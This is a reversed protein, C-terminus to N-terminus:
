EYQWFFGSKKFKSDRAISGGFVFEVSPTVRGDSLVEIKHVIEDRMARTLNPYFAPDFTLCVILRAASRCVANRVWHGYVIPKGTSILDYSAFDLSREQRAITPYEDFLDYLDSGYLLLEQSEPDQLCHGKRGRYVYLEDKATFIDGTRYRIMPQRQVFPYLTTLLLEGTNTTDPAILEPVVYRDFDFGAAYTCQSAGGFIESLSYRELITAGWQEELLLRLRRSIYDGTVSILDINFERPSLGSRICYSTFLLLQDLFASIVRNGVTFGMAEGGERLYQSFNRATGDDLVCSSINLCDVPISRPAGHTPVGLSFILTQTRSRNAVAFATFFDQAFQEEEWCGHILFCSGTTGSTNGIFDTRRNSALARSGSASLLGRDVTPLLKLDSRCLLPPLDKYMQAYLPVFERANSVTEPLLADILAWRSSRSEYDISSARHDESPL